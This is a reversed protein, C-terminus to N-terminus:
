GLAGTEVKDEAYWHGPNYSHLIKMGFAKLDYNFKIDLITALPEIFNWYM